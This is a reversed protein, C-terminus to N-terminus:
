EAVPRRGPDLESTVTLSRQVNMIARAGVIAIAAALIAMALGGGGMLFRSWTLVLSFSSPDFDNRIPFWLEALVTFPVQVFLLLAILALSILLRVAFERATAAPWGLVAILVLLAYQLIGGLTLSVEMWGATRQDWNMPQLVKAGFVLARALDARVRMVSNSGDQGIDIGLIKFNDDILTISSRIFPLLMELITKEFYQSTGLVVIAVFIFRAMYRVPNPWARTQM